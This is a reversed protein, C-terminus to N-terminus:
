VNMTKALILDSERFLDVKTKINTSKKYILDLFCDDRLDIYDNLTNEFLENAKEDSSRYKDLRSLSYITKLLVLAAADNNLQKFEKYLERKEIANRTAYTAAGLTFSVGVTLACLGVISKSITLGGFLTKLAHSTVAGSVGYGGILPPVVFTLMALAAMGGVFIASTLNNTQKKIMKVFDENLTKKLKELYYPEQGFIYSLDFFTQQEFMQEYNYSRDIILDILYTQRFTGYTDTYFHKNVIKKLQDKDFEFLTINKDSAFKLLAEINAKTSYLANQIKSANSFFGTNIPTGQCYKLISRLRFYKVNLDFELLEKEKNVLELSNDNM